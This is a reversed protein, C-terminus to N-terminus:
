PARDASRARRLTELVKEDGSLLEAVKLADRFGDPGHHFAIGDRLETQRAFRAELLEYFIADLGYKESNWEIRRGLKLDGNKEIDGIDFLMSDIFCSPGKLGSAAGSQEAIYCKTFAFNAQLQPIQDFSRRFQSARTIAEQISIKKANLNKLIKQVHQGRLDSSQSARGRLRFGTAIVMRAGPNGRASDAIQIADFLRKSQQIFDYTPWPTRYSLDGYAAAGDNMVLTPFTRSSHDAVVQHFVRIRDVSNKAMPHMPNFKAEKITSGYGLLDVWCCVSVQFPFQVKMGVVPSKKNPM